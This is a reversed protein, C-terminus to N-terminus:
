NPCVGSRLSPTRERPVFKGLQYRHCNPPVRYIDGSYNLSLSTNRGSAVHSHRVLVLAIEFLPLRAAAFAFAGHRELNDFLFASAGSV